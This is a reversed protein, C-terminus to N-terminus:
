EHSIPGSATNGQMQPFWSTAKLYFWPAPAMEDGGGRYDTKKVRRQGPRTDVTQGTDARGQNNYGHSGM